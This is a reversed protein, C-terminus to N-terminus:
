RSGPHVRLVRELGARPLPDTPDLRIAERFAAAAGDLDNLEHLAVGLVHYLIANDPRIAIAVRYYAARREPNGPERATWHFAARIALGFHTPHAAQAATLIRRAEAVPTLRHGGVFQAFVPPLAGPDLHRTLKAIAADDKTVYALRLERRVPDPDLRDILHLLAPPSGVELWGDLGASLAAAIPSQRVKQALADASEADLDIRHERFAAPYNVRAFEDDSQTRHPDLRWRRADIEDLRRLTRRDRALSEYRGRLDDLGGEDIRSRAQALAADIERYSPNEKRLAAEAQDLALEAVQRSTGLALRARAERESQECRRESERERSERDAYWLAFGAMGVLPLSVVALLGQARRRRREAAAVAAAKGREAEARAREVEAQRSRDVASARIAALVEAVQAADAPREAPDPALCRGALAALEPEDTREALRARAASVDGLEALARVTARPGAYPPRGTLIECLVAGLAFVDSHRGVRDHEGRAQEPPMYALTGIVGGAATEERNRDSDITSASPDAPAASEASGVVKALGWDMVQVEGFNGVMVNAPKLDRHILGRDHAYAVAQCVHEFVALLAALDRPGDLIDALTRGRILKMALFPRGDPLTGLDHIPPIAPHQLRATVRGEDLFRVVAQPARAYEDRLVKVAVRRGLVNDRAEYVIGMGGRAIEEGLEYRKAGAPHATPAAKRAALEPEVVTRGPDTHPISLM